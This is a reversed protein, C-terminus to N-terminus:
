QNELEKIKEELIEVKKSLQQVAGITTAILDPSYYNVFGHGDDDKFSLNPIDSNEVNQYILGTHRKSDLNEHTEIAEETYNYDVVDGLSNLKTIYDSESINEKLRLDSSVSGILTSCKINGGVILYKQIFVDTGIINFSVNVDSRITSEANSTLYMVAHANVWTLPSDIDTRRLKLCMNGDNGGSWVISAGAENTGAGNITLGGKTIDFSGAYTTLTFKPNTKGGIHIYRFRKDETGVTSSGASKPIIDGVDNLDGDITSLGSGDCDHGWFNTTNFNCNTVIWNTGDYVVEIKATDGPNIKAPLGKLILRSDSKPVYSSSTSTTYQIICTSSSGRYTFYLEIKQGNFWQYSASTQVTPDYIILNVTSSTINSYLRKKYTTNITVSSSSTTSIYDTKLESDIKGKDTSSLLGNASTTATATTAVGTCTRPSGGSLYIPQSSSGLTSNGLKQANESNTAYPISVSNINRKAM